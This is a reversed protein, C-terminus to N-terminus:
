IVLDDAICKCTKPFVRDQNCLLQLRGPSRDNGLNALRRFPSTASPQVDDDCKTCPILQSVERTAVSCYVFPARLSELGALHDSHVHSLFCALPAKHAPQQRFYDIRIQPFETIIGRFTSMPNVLFAQNLIVNGFTSATPTSCRCSPSHCAPHHTFPCPALRLRTSALALAYDTRPTM